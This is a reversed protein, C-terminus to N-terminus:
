RDVWGRIRRKAGPANAEWWPIFVNTYAVGVAYCVGAFAALGAISGTLIAVLSVWAPADGMPPLLFAVWSAVSVAVLFATSLVLFGVGAYDAANPDTM